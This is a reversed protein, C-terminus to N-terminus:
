PLHAQRSTQTAAVRRGRRAALGPVLLLLLWSGMAGGGGSDDEKLDGILVPKASVAVSAEVGGNPGRCELKFSSDAQIPATEASGSAPKTGSWAGSALCETAGTATWTLTTKQGATVMMPDAVLKLTTSTASEVAVTATSGSSGGAGKCTLTFSGNSSLPGVTAQGTLAKPGQWGGSAECSDANQVTWSLTSSQGPKVLAPSAALSVTPPSVAPTGSLAPAKVSVVASAQRLDGQGDRCELTFTSSSQLGAVMESGAVAKNGSWAGSATCGVAGSTVWNLAASGGAPVERPSATLEVTFVTPATVTVTASRTTSGGSGDCTLIFESSTDLPGVTEKGSVARTGSWAGSGRCSTARDASWTVVSTQGKGVTEPSAAISVTPPTPSDIAVTLSRKTTGGPGTCSLSYSTAASLPGVTEAGSVLRAGSWGGSAECTTANTANWSLKSSQGASVSAPNASFTVAPAASVAVTVAKSVSGGPGTCALTFTADGNLPGTGQTGSTGKSGTWAGSADCATAGTASWTLSASQGALISLPSATLSLTPAATPASSVTVAVSRAVSGGAGTCTMNFTTDASLPGITEEGLTPRSGSWGGSVSCVTANSSSWTLKATGGSVISSQAATLTLAPAPAASVSVVTSKWTSGGAGSCTLTFTTDSNIPGVSQSGSVAKDGSWGGSAQCSTADSTSWSLQSTQGASVSQPSASLSVVPPLSGPPESAADRPVVAFNPYSRYDPLNTRSSFFRWADKGGPAGVTAMMAVAPQLNARRSYPGSANDDFAGFPVGLKSAMAETGCGLSRTAEGVSAEYVQLYSAYLPEDVSPRISLNYRTAFVWCFEGEILTGTNYRAFFDVLGQADPFDLEVLRAIAFNFFNQMWPSFGSGERPSIIGLSNSRPYKSRYMDLNTAIVARLYGKLPYDDPAIWAAQGFNRLTWAQDRLQKAQISRPWTSPYSASGIVVDRLLHMNAWFIAEELYFYDGTVIYPVYAAAPAHGGDTTLSTSNKVPAPFDGSGFGNLGARKNGPASIDIPYGTSEDRYHQGWASFADANALMAGFARRDGSVLYLADWRPLPGIHDSAGAQELAAVNDGKTMPKVSDRARLSDLVPNPVKLDAFKPTVKTDQLYHNDHRVYALPESGWWLVKHWRAHHFHRLGTIAYRSEGGVLIEGDYDIDGPEPVRAWGNEIVVDVRVRNIPNGAYARVHFYATLHPHELGAATAVPGGVIWESVLPGSLWSRASVAQLLKRASASYVTGNVTLRVVSDFSTALLQELRVPAVAAVQPELTLSFPQVGNAPLSALKITVVGHRLSGDQHTAKRDVQAPVVTGDALAAGVTSGAPVDGEKFVHGFTLSLGSQASGSLSEVSLDAVKPGADAAFSALLLLASASGLALYGRIRQQWHAFRM